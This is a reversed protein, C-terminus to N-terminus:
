KLIKAAGSGACSPCLTEENLIGLGSCDKCPVQVWQKKRPSVGGNDSDAAKAQTEGFPGDKIWADFFLYAIGFVVCLGIALNSM